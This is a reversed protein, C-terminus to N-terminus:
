RWAFYVRRALCAAVVPILSALLYSDASEERARAYDLYGEFLSGPPYVAAELPLSPTSLTSNTSLVVSTGLSNEVAEVNEVPASGACYAIEPTM